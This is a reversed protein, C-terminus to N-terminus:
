YGYAHETGWGYELGEGVKSKGGEGRRGANTERRQARQTGADEASNKAKKATYFGQWSRRLFVKVLVTSSSIRGKTYFHRENGCIKL